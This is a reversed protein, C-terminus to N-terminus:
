KVEIKATVSPNTEDHYAYSGAKTFKYSFTQNTALSGSALDPTLNHDPHNNSMIQRPLTDKNLWVVTDNVNITTISPDFKGNTIFITVTKSQPASSTELTTITPEHLQYQEIAGSIQQKRVETMKLGPTLPDYENKIQSGDTYNSQAAVSRNDTYKNIPNTLYVNFEDGDALGDSDTDPKTPDSQEVFEEYNTLGDTDPDADDGCKTLDLCIDVNFFQKVFVKPLKAVSKQDNNDTTSNPWLLFYALGGLVLLVLISIVVYTTRNHWIGVHEPPLPPNGSDFKANNSTTASPSSVPKGMDGMHPMVSFSAPDPENNGNGTSQNSLDLNDAM